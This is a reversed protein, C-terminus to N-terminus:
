AAKRQEGEALAQAPEPQVSRTSLVVMSTMIALALAGLGYWVGSM